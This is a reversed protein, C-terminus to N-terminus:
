FGIQIGGVPRAPLIFHFFNGPRNEYCNRQREHNGQRTVSALVSSIFYFAELCAIISPTSIMPCPAARAGIPAWTGIPARPGRETEVPAARQDNSWRPVRIAIVGRRRDDDLLLRRHNDLRLLLRIIVPIITLIRLAIVRIHFTARASPHLDNRLRRWGVGLPSSALIFDVRKRTINAATKIKLAHAVIGVPGLTITSGDVPFDKSTNWDSSRAQLFQAASWVPAVGAPTTLWFRVPPAAIPAKIPAPSPAAIPAAEPLAAAPAAIPAPDPRM